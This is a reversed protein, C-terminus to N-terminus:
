TEEACAQDAETDGGAPAPELAFDIFTTDVKM